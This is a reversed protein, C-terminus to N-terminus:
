DATAPWATAEFKTATTFSEFKFTMEPTVTVQATVAPPPEVEAQVVVDSALPSTCHVKVVPVVAPTFVIVAVAVPTAVGAVNLSVPVAPVAVLIVTTDPLVCLPVAPEGKGPLKTATTFSTFKFTTEPFVTVQATVAPPPATLAHVVVESALPCTRQVKVKPVVTPVFVTVAVALPIAVGAVKVSVPTAPAAAPIVTTEPLM